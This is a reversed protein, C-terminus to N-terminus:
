TKRFVFLAGYFQFIQELKFPARIIFQSLTILRVHIKVVFSFESGKKREASLTDCKM